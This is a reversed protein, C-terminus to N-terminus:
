QMIPVPAVVRSRACSPQAPDYILSSHRRPGLSRSSRLTWGSSFRLPAFPQPLENNVNM